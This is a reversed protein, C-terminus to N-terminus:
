PSKPVYVIECGPLNKKLAAVGEDTVATMTLDLRKLQKLEAIAKLGVDSILSRSVDLARLGPFAELVQLGSDHLQLRISYPKTELDQKRAFTLQLETVPGGPARIVKGGRAEVVRVAGLEEDTLGITDKLRDSEPTAESQLKLTYTFAGLM